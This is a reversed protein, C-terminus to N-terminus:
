PLPLWHPRSRRPLSAMRDAWYSLLEQRVVSRLLLADDPAGISTAVAWPIDIDDDYLAWHLYTQTGLWVRETESWLAKGQVARCKFRFIAHAAFRVASDLPLRRSRRRISRQRRTPAHPPRATPQDTLM